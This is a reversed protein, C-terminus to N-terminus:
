GQGACPRAGGGARAPDAAATRRAVAGPDRPRPPQGPRHRRPEGRCVRGDPGRRDGDEGPAPAPAAPRRRRHPHPIERPRPPDADPRRPLDPPRRVPQGRGLAAAAAPRRPPHRSRGGERPAAAARRADAEATAPAHIARTQGRDEDVSLVLCRNLMEEDIDIATTTMMLMTPGEVRYQQSTLNGNADTGTSAITLGGESQLLKLAYAARHAGEEEAIALIRHKLSTEGMYFLSQGTMASYQVRDEEPVFSLVAEMLASKGAASSSQIVVALPASLKRSVAALYAVVKNTAEGVVGVAEFDALIRGVLDPATLLALAAQREAEGLVVPEPEKPALAGKIAAGQLQELKLLLRSLDAKVMDEVVGLEIAAHAAFSARARAHYLDLTDVYIAAGRSALLNIKLIDYALNKGLGRVRYRRDAFIVVVESDTVEAAIDRAGEPVAAAPLPDEPAPASAASPAALPTISAVAASLVPAPFGAASPVPEAVDRGPPKGDGMWEAKRILLGLAKTAPTVKLAYENADMGKPFLIRWVGFGEERLRGALRSAARDGADDRDFAILVREVGAAKFAALMDDGFGEVGYAATVNRYGACWFMMADLLSECLIAERGAALAAGNWCGAHPGPLYLHKPTGKRLDDRIKRGYVEVVGGSSDFVPVV